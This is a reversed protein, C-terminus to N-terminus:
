SQAECRRSVALLIDWEISPYYDTLDVGVDVVIQGSKHNLDVKCLFIFHENRQEVAMSVIIRVLNGDHTWTGFKLSCNQEDFPYYQINIACYSKYIM